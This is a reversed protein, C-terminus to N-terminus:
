RIIHFLDGAAAETQKMEYDAEMEDKLGEGGNEKRNSESRRKANM